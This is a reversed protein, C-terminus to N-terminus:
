RPVLARRGAQSEFVVSSPDIELLRWGQHSGGIMLKAGDNLVVYPAPGSVVTRLRFPLTALVAPLRNPADAPRLRTSASFAVGPHRQATRLLMQEWRPVDAAALLAEIHLQGDAWRGTVEAFSSGRLDALLSLAREEATSLGNDLVVESPLNRRLRALLADRAAADALAGELRFRGGGLPKANLALGLDTAEHAVAGVVIAQLDQESTVSLAPRPSLRSLAMALQEYEDDGLLSARVAPMGNAGTTVSVRSGLNLRQVVALVAERQATASAQAPLPLVAEAGPVPSLVVSWVAWLLLAVPVLMLLAFWGRRSLFSLLLMTRGASAVDSVAFPSLEPRETLDDLASVSPLEAATAVLDSSPSARLAAQVCAADPWPADPVNVSILVPGVRHLVGPELAMGVADAPDAPDSPVDLLQLRLEGAGSFLRAHQPLLGTDALLFDCDNAAGLLLSTGTLAEHAGAHTGSHIRLELTTSADRKM